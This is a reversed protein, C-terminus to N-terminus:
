LHRMVTPQCDPGAQCGQQATPDLVAEHVRGPGLAGRNNEGSYRVRM